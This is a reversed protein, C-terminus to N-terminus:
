RGAGPETTPPGAPNYHRYVAAGIRAILLNAPNDVAYSTDRNERTMVCVAVPAQPGQIIGCDNRSQDVEGTKHAVIVSEPLWRVLKTFDQNARLLSLAVSDMAPNVATGAHLRAFLELTEDPTTVGLGYKVSSDMAVSTARIFTKSHVRTAPLGLSDMKAWVTRINLKDLLLNTATNDSLTIMLAAADQVTMEMGSHMYQLVGSGGVQDRAIMSIPDDMRLSGRRVEDLATVLIAVKILSASPFKEGGRISLSEGTALNRVSVGAVGEYGTMLRELQRRLGATDSAPTVPRLSAGGQAFAPTCAALLALLLAALPRALIPM